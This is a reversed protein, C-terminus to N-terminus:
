VIKKSIKLTIQVAWFTSIGRNRVNSVGSTMDM